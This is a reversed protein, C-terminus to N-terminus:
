IKFLSWRVLTVHLEESVFLLSLMHFTFIPQWVRVSTSSNNWIQQPVFSLFRLMIPNVELIQRPDRTHQFM